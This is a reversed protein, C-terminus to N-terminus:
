ILKALNVETNKVEELPVCPCVRWQGADLGDGDGDDEMCEITSSGRIGGITPGDGIHGAGGEEEEEV